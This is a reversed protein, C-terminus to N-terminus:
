GQGQDALLFEFTRGAPLVGQFEGRYTEETEHINEDKLRECSAKVQAYDAYRFFREGFELGCWAQQQVLLELFDHVKRVARPHIEEIVEAVEDDTGEAALRFLAEIRAM